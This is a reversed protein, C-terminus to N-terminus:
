LPIVRVRPHKLLLTRLDDPDGTLVDAQAVVAEAAVLADVANTGGTNGLLSAAVRGTREDTPLVEVANRVRLLPADRAGGRTEVLVAVPIRVEVGFELARRLIARPRGEGRSLSVV